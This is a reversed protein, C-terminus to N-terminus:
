EYERVKQKEAYRKELDSLRKNMETEQNLEYARLFVNLLQVVTGANSFPLEGKDNISQIWQRILNCVDKPNEMQLPM